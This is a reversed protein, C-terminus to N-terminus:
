QSIPKFREVGDQVVQLEGILQKIQNLTLVTEFRCDNEENLFGLRAGWNGTRFAELLVEDVGIKMPSVEVRVKM